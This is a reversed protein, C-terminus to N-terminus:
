CTDESSIEKPPSSGKQYVGNFSAHLLEKPEHTYIHLAHNLRDHVRKKSNSLNLKQSSRFSEVFSLSQERSHILRKILKPKNYLSCTWVLCPEPAPIFDPGQRKFVFYIPENKTM